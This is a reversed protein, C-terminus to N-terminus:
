DPRNNPTTEWGSGSLGGGHVLAVPPYHNKNTPVLYQVYAHEIAFHGRPDVDIGAQRTFQVRVPEGETVHAM